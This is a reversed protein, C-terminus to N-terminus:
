DEAKDPPSTEVHGHESHRESVEHIYGAVVGSQTRQLRGDEANESPPTNRAQDMGGGAETRTHRDDYKLL